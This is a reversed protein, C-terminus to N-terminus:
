DLNIEPKPWFAYIEPNAKYTEKAANHNDSKMKIFNRMEVFEATLPIGAEEICKCIINLQTHIPYEILIEKNVVMDIAAEDILPMEHKDVVKGTAFSGWFYENQGITEKRFKINAETLRDAYAQEFDQISVVHSGDANFIVLKQTM